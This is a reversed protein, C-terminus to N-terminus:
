TSYKYYIQKGNKIAKMSNIANQPVKLSLYIQEIDEVISNLRKVTIRAENCHAFSVNRIYALHEIDYWERQCVYVDVTIQAQPQIQYGKPFKFPHKMFFQNQTVNRIEAQFPDSHLDVIIKDGSRLFNRLDIRAALAKVMKSQIQFTFQTGQIKKALLCWSSYLLVHFILTPDWQNIDGNQLLQIQTASLKSYWREYHM